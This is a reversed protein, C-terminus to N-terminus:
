ALIAKVTPWIGKPHGSPDCVLLDIPHVELADAIAQLNAQSYGTKANEIQSITATSLGVAEGLETQSMERHKRWERIFTRQLPEAVPTAPKRKAASKKVMSFQRPIDGEQGHLSALIEEQPRTKTLSFAEEMFSDSYKFVLRMLRPSNAAAIPTEAPRIVCSQSSLPQGDRPTASFIEAAVSPSTVAFSKKRKSSTSPLRAHRRPWRVVDGMAVGTYEGGMCGKLSKFCVAM